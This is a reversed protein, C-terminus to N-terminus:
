PSAETKEHTHAASQAAREERSHVAASIACYAAALPVGLFMGPVGFLAGFVTVAALVWLGPLGVSSGVVRPYILNGELQQLIVLFVLFLVAQAPSVSLIMFAGVAAGVVPILALVVVLTGIMLAYALRLVLMGLTCLGSLIVAELCPGVIYKHFCTDLLRAARLVRSCWTPRRCCGM